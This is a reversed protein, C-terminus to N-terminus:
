KNLVNFQERQEDSLSDKLNILKQRDETAKTVKEDILVNNEKNERFNHLENLTMELNYLLSDGVSKPM